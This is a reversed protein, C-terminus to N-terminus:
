EATRLMARMQAQADQAPRGKANGAYPVNIETTMAPHHHIGFLMRMRPAHPAIPQVITVAM